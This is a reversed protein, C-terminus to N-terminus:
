TLLFYQLLLTTFTTFILPFRQLFCHARCCSIYWSLRWSEVILFMAHVALPLPSSKLSVDCTAVALAVCGDRVTGGFNRASEAEIDLKSNGDYQTPM